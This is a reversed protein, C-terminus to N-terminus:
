RLNASLVQFERRGDLRHQQQTAKLEEVSRRLTSIQSHLAMLLERENTQRLMQNQETGVEDLYVEGENGTVVLLIKKVPNEAAPLLRINNYASSVRDRMAQPLYTKQSSFLMWLLPKALVKAVDAPLRTCINPVVHQLLFNDTVGSGEKIVYKCPGGICLKGAVKADPFPLEIDDYVDSVRMGKKWRGCIDKEDKSCRNKRAHTSALKRVSHTGLPGKTTNFDDRNYIEGALINQVTEKAKVGGEPVREDPNFGFVYPTLEGGGSEIFVELFVALGLLVCYMPDMAGILIQNPADREENVNKSWNLKSRLTFDFDASATLNELIFQTSDDIRAILNYQFKFLSPIGYRCILDDAPSAM